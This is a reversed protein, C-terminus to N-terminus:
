EESETKKRYNAPQILGSITFVVEAVVYFTVVSCIGAVIKM